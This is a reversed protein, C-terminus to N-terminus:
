ETVDSGGALDGLLPVTDRALTVRQAKQEIGEGSMSQEAQTASQELALAEAQAQLSHAVAKLAAADEQLKLQEERLQRAEAVLAEQQQQQQQEQQQHLHPQQQGQLGGQQKDSLAPKRMVAPVGGDLSSSGLGQGPSEVLVQDLHLEQSQLESFSLGSGPLLVGLQGEGDSTIGAQGYASTSWNNPQENRLAQLPTACYQAMFSSIAEIVQAPQEEMPLHGCQPLEVYQVAAAASSLSPNSGQDKKSRRANQFAAAVARGATAPVATDADGQLVLVPAQVAAFDPPTSVVSFSRFVNLSGRDWDHARLPRLFGEIVEERAFSTDDYYVGLKGQRVEEARKYIQQRVYNLGPGDTAIIARTLALRILQGLDAQALFGKSNTSIAPAILVVGAVLEPHRAALDVAIPGGASHGMVVVKGLGLREILRRAFETAGALTYPNTDEAAADWSLPRGSLGFPPRDYAVARCLEGTHTALRDALPGQILRYNFESGNFGPHTVFNSCLNGVCPLGSWIMAAVFEMQDYRVLCATCTATAGAKFVHLMLLAPTSGARAPTPPAPARAPAPEPGHGPSAAPGTLGEPGALSRASSPPVALVEKYHIKVGLVDVFLSDQDALLQPDVTDTLPAPPGATFPEVLTKIWPWSESRFRKYGLGPYKKGKAPLKGQEPWYCLVLPQWRSEGIRQMNLAANCDRALWRGPQPAPKAKAARGKPKAAQEAKTPTTRKSRKAPPPTSPGSESAAAQTAEQSSCPAQPPKRPAVVPCWMMGRVPQDRLQSWAPHVLRHHVQGAPPKWGARRTPQEHDLQEECPQQGNVASSVRTTRHEDVLVVRGQQQDTGRPRCVVKCCARLVADAGWGGGSGTCAAGFFVVLQKARGHREM